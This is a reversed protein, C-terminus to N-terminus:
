CFRRGHSNRKSRKNAHSVVPPRVTKNAQGARRMWSVAHVWKAAACLVDRYGNANPSLHTFTECKHTNVTCQPCGHCSRHVRCWAFANDSTPELMAPPDNLSRLNHLENTFVPHQLWAEWLPTFHGICSSVHCRGSSSLYTPWSVIAERAAYRSRQIALRRTNRSQANSPAVM